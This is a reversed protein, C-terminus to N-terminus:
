PDLQPPPALFATIALLTDTGSGLSQDDWDDAVLTTRTQKLLARAEALELALANKDIVMLVLDTAEGRADALALASCQTDADTLETYAWVVHEAAALEGCVRVLGADSAGSASKWADRELRAEALQTLLGQVVYGSCSPCLGGSEDVWGHRKCKDPPWSEFRTAWADHYDSM